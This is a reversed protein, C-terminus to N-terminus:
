RIRQRVVTALEVLCGLAGFTLCIGVLSLFLWDHRGDCSQDGRHQYEGRGYGKNLCGWEWCRHGHGGNWHRPGEQHVLFGDWRHGGLFLVGGGFVKELLAARAAYDLRAGHVVRDRDREVVAGKLVRVIEEVCQVALIDLDREKDVALVDAVNIGVRVNDLAGVARPMM